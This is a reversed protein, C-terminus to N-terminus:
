PVGRARQVVDTTHYDTMSKFLGHWLRFHGNGYVRCQKAADILEHGGPPEDVAALGDFGRERMLKRVNAWRRDRETLSLTPPQMPLNPM